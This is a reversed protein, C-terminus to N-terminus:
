KSKSTKKNEKKPPVKKIPEEQISPEKKIEPPNIIEEPVTENIPSDLRFIM